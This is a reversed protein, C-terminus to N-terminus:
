ERATPPTRNNPVALSRPGGAASFRRSLSMMPPVGCTDSASKVPAWIRSLFPRCATGLGAHWAALSGFPPLKPGCPTSGAGGTPEAGWVGTARDRTGFCASKPRQGPLRLDGTHRQTRPLTPAQSFQIRERRVRSHQADRNALPASKASLRSLPRGATKALVAAFHGLRPGDLARRPSHTLSRM